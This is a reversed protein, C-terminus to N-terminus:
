HRAQELGDLSGRSLLLHAHLLILMKGGVTAWGNVFEVHIAGAFDAPPNRPAHNFRYVESVADVVIRM